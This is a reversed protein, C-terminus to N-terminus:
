IILAVIHDAGETARVVLWSSFQLKNLIILTNRLHDKYSAFVDFIYKGIAVHTGGRCRAIGASFKGGQAALYKM